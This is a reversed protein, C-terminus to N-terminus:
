QGQGFTSGQIESHLGDSECTCSPGREALGTTVVEVPLGAEPPEEGCQDPQREPEEHRVVAEVDFRDLPPAHLHTIDPTRRRGGCTVFGMGALGGQVRIIRRPPVHDEEVAEGDLKSLLKFPPVDDCQLADPPDCILMISCQGGVMLDGASELSTTFRIM